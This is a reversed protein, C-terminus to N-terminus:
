YLGRVARQDNHQADGADSGGISVLMITGAPLVMHYLVSGIFTLNLAPALRDSYAHRLPFWELQFGLFFLGVMALWFYPFSGVFLLM